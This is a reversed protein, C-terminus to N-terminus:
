NEQPSEPKKKKRRRNNRHARPNPVTELFRQREGEDMEQIKTWWQASDEVKEGAQARLCLFDYGARFRPHTMIRLSRKTKPRTLRPQLLWIEHSLITIRRPISIHRVQRNIVKDIASVLCDQESLGRDRFEPILRLIPFWLLAAFLFAPTIPKDAAVRADTNKLAQEVLALACPDDFCAETQPFLFKFLGFERLKLFSPYAHGSLFMKLVEEYLRAAHTNELLHSFQHIPKATEPEIEFGLKAALRVARLMRVPDEQYREAPNGILRIIKAHLDDLGNAYDLLSFDAIDYYLANITFDRRCADEDITGYVNDRIICGNEIVGDGSEDHQKRFTAVEIIEQGFHVHALLFRRGILRCNRFVQRVQEPSANTAVDFDKPKLGLLTDRIGGGVLFAQYGSQHLQYLVKVANKSINKRSVSHQARPIHKAPLQIPSPLKITSPRMTLLPPPSPNKKPNFLTQILNVLRKYAV